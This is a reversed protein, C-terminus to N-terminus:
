NAPNYKKLFAAIAGYVRYRTEEKAIGHEEKELEMYEYVKGQKKLGDRMDEGHVLPVRYDKEGYVMFVPAKIKDAQKAPSTATFQDRLKDPDGLTKNLSYTAAKNGWHDSSSIYFLNTVGLLNVGCRYLDPDKVLGMMAAYGGYSAGMICVRKPDVLGQKVLSLVGDTVDDQMALGWQGFSKKFHPDGFGTSGRFQPQLVAYGLSALFQVEPNFGWHDRGWPGGHVSVVLPLAKAERGRPLTLYSLIPLGDRAQYDYALQVSMSKPDVWPRVAFLNQLKRRDPFYLSYQGPHTSSYSHVLMAAQANGPTIVNVMGPFAKDIGLQLSAMAKDLWLTRPPESNVRIGLLKRTDPAFVLGDNVDVTSDSAILEGPRNNVFDYKYIGWRGEQAPASVFMTTGDSDFALVEFKPDFTSHESLKRWPQGVQDRYWVVVESHETNTTSVVRLRNAGDLVFGRALGKVDFDIEKRKGTLSDVRYPVADGNPFYGVGIIANSDDGVSRALMSMWRPESAWTASDMRGRIQGPSEMLIASHSADRDIAYLGGASSTQEGDRDIINYALREDSIWRLGAVDLTEYGAVNKASGTEIEVVALQSRGDINATTALYKGNPSLTATGYKSNRFFNEVSTQALVAGWSSCLIACTLVLRFRLSSIAM